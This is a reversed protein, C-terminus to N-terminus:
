SGRTWVTTQVVPKAGLAEVFLETRFGPLRALAELLGSDGVRDLPVLCGRAEDGYLVVVGGSRRHPGRDAVLVSVEQVEGWDVEETRGDALERRVGFEDVRLDVTASRVERQLGRNRMVAVFIAIPAVLVLLVVVEM